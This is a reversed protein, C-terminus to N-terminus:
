VVWIQSVILSLTVCAMFTCMYEYGDCMYKGVNSLTTTLPFGAATNYAATLSSQAALSAGNGSQQVGKLIAPPFGAVATGPNVGLDGTVVTGIVGTSTVTSGALIAYNTAAGLDIYNKRTTRLM